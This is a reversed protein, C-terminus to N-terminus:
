HYSLSDLRPGNGEVGVFTRLIDYTITGSRFRVIIDVDSKDTYEDRAMSGIVAIRELSYVQHFRENNQRLYDLIETRNKKSM